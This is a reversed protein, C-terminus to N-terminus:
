RILRIIPDAAALSEVYAATGDKSGDDVVLIEAEMGRCFERVKPLYVPLRQEENYAPLVFSILPGGSREEAVPEPPRGLADALNSDYIGALKMKYRPLYVWTLALVPIGRWLRYLLPMLIGPSPSGMLNSFIFWVFELVGLGAPLP